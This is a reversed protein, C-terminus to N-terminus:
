VDLNAAAMRQANTPIPETFTIERKRSLRPTRTVQPKPLFEETSKNDENAVVKLDNTPRKDVQFKM